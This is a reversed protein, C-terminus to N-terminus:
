LTQAYFRPNGYMSLIFCFYFSQMIDSYEDYEAEFDLRAEEDM